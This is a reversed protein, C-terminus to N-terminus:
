RDIGEFVGPPLWPVPRYLPNTRDQRTKESWEAQIEACRERIEEPTPLPSPHNEGNKRYSYRPKRGVQM